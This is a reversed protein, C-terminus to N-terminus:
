KIPDCLEVDPDAYIQGNRQLGDLINKENPLVTAIFWNNFVLHWGFNITTMEIQFSFRVDKGRRKKIQFLLM